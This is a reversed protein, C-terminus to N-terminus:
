QWDVVNSLQENALEEESNEPAHKTIWYLGGYSADLAQQYEGLRHLTEARLTNPRMTLAMGTPSTPSHRAAATMFDRDSARLARLVRGCKGEPADWQIMAAEEIDALHAIADVRGEVVGELLSTSVQLARERDYGNQYDDPMRHIDYGSTM